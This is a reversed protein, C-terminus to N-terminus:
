KSKNEIIHLQGLDDKNELHLEKENAIHLMCIFCFPVSLNPLDQASTSKPIEKLLDRFDKETNSSKPKDQKDQNKQQSQLPSITHLKEWLNTKLARVDIFKATKQYNIMIQDPRKPEDIFKGGSLEPIPDNGNQQQQHHANSTEDGFLNFALPQNQKEDNEDFNVGMEVGMDIGGFDDDDMLNMNPQEKEQEKENNNNNNNNNNDIGNQNQNSGGEMAIRKRKSSNIHWNPKNFLQTLMKINYHVDEPLTNAAQQQQQMKKLKQNSITTSKGPSFLKLDVTTSPDTFKIFFPEKRSKKKGEQEQQDIVENEEDVNDNNNNKNQNKNTESDVSTNKKAIPKFKWHEPGAWNKLSKPDFYTFENDTTLLGPAFDAVGENPKSKQQNVNTKENQQLNQQEYNVIVNEVNVPEQDVKRDMKEEDDSRIGGVDVGMQIEEDNAEYPIENEL